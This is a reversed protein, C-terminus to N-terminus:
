GNRGFDLLAEYEAPEDAGPVRAGNRLMFGHRVIEAQQEIGYDELPWGPV